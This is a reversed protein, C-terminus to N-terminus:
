ELTPLSVQNRSGNPDTASLMKDHDLKESLIGNKAITCLYKEQRDILHRHRFFFDVISTTGRPCPTGVTRNGGGNM